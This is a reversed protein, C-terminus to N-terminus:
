LHNFVIILGSYKSNVKFPLDPLRKNASPTSEKNDRVESQNDNVSKGYKARYYDLSKNLPDQATNKVLSNENKDLVSNRQRKKESMHKMKFGVMSDLEIEKRSFKRPSMFKSEKKPTFSKQPIHEEYNVRCPKNRATNQRVTREVSSVFDSINNDFMIEQFKKMSFDQFSHKDFVNSSTTGHKEEHVSQSLGPTKFKEEEEISDQEVSRHTDNNLNKIAAESQERIKQESGFLLRMHQLTDVGNEEQTAQDNEEQTVFSDNKDELDKINFPIKDQSSDRSKQYDLSNDNQEEAQEISVFSDNQKDFDDCQEPEEDEFVSINEHPQSHEEDSQRSLHCQFPYDSEANENICESGNEDDGEFDVNVDGTVDPDDYGSINQQTPQEERNDNEFEEYDDIILNKNDYAERMDIHQNSGIFDM